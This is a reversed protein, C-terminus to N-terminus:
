MVPRMDNRKPNWVHSCTLKRDGTCVEPGGLNINFNIMSETSMYRSYFSPIKGMLICTHKIAEVIQRDRKKKPM